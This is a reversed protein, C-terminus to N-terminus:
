GCGGIEEQFHMRGSCGILIEYADNGGQTSCTKCRLKRSKIVLKTYINAAGLLYSALYIDIAPFM